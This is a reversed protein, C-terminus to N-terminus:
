LEERYWKVIEELEKFDLEEHQIGAEYIRRAAEWINYIGVEMRRKIFEEYTESEGHIIKMISDLMDMMILSKEEDETLDVDISMFLNNIHIDVDEGRLYSCYKHILLKLKDKDNDMDKIWRM